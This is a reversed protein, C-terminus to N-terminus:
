TVMLEKKKPAGLMRACIFEVLEAIEHRIGQHLEEQWRGGLEINGQARAWADIAAPTNIVDAQSAQLEGGM